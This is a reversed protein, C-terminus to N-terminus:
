ISYTILTIYYYYAPVLVRPNHADPERHTTVQHRFVHALRADLRGVDDPTDGDALSIVGVHLSNIMMKSNQIVHNNENNQLSKVLTM